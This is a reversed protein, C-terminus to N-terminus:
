SGLCVGHLTVVSQVGESVAADLPKVVPAGSWWPLGVARWKSPCLVHETLILHFFGNM